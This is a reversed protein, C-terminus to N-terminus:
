VIRVGPLCRSFLIYRVSFQARDKRNYRYSERKKEGEVVVRTHPFFVEEERAGEASVWAPGSRPM